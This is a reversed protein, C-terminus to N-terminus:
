EVALVRGLTAEGMITTRHIVRRVGPPTGTACHMLRWNDWLVMDGKRWAHFYHFAPNRTHEVLRTLLEIAEDNSLGARQPTLLRDLFQEVIELVRRGTVPHRTVAPYVADPFDPFGVDSPKRPSHPGPEYGALDVYRMHRRQMSFAYAVELRELLQQTDADLAEWALALDGFGTLGDQEPVEVATLVAGHNPRGTYHLDKHWDLRGVVPEGHYWALMSRDRETGNELVFLEPHEASTKVKLPHMELPGFLRSFAIQREPSLDQDRFLLLGHQYWLERLQQQLAEDMPARLDFGHVEVGIHQLPTVSLTM